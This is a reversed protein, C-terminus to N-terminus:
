PFLKLLCIFYRQGKTNLTMIPGEACKDWFSRYCSFLQGYLSVSQFKPSLTATIYLHPVKSRKANLAMKLDNTVNKEIHGTVQYSSAYLWFCFSTQSEPTTCCRYPICKLKWHELDNQPWDTQKDRVSMSSTETISNHSLNSKTSNVFKLLRLIKLRFHMAVTSGPTTYILICLTAGIFNLFSCMLMMVM